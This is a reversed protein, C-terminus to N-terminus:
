EGKKVPRCPEGCFVIKRFENPVGSGIPRIKTGSRTDFAESIKHCKPGMDGPYCNTDMTTEHGATCIFKQFKPLPLYGSHM